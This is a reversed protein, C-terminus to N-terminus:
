DDTLRLVALQAESGFFYQRCSSINGVDQPLFQSNAQESIHQLALRLLSNNVSRIFNVGYGMWRQGAELCFEVQGGHFGKTLFNVGSYDQDSAGAFSTFQSGPQSKAQTDSQCLVTQLYRHIGVGALQQGITRHIAAVGHGHDAAVIRGM